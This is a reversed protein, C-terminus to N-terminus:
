YRLIQNSIVDKSDEITPYAKSVAKQCFHCHTNFLIRLLSYTHAFFTIIFDNKWDFSGQLPLMELTLVTTHSLKEDLKPLIKSFKCLFLNNPDVQKTFSFNKPSTLFSINNVTTFILFWLIENKEINEVKM